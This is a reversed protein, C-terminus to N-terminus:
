LSALVDAAPKPKGFVWGQALQFGCGKVLRLQEETEVGEALAVAGSARIREVTHRVAQIIAPGGEIRRIITICLKVINPSLDTVMSMNLFGCGADDLAVQAGQRRLPRTRAAFARPEAIPLHETIEFVRRRFSRPHPLLKRLLVADLIDPGLNVSLWYPEPLRSARGLAASVCALDLDRRLGYHTAAAFLRDPREVPGGAPGRALAEFGVTRMDALDVVPQLHFDICPGALIDRFTEQSVAPVGLVEDLATIAGSLREFLRAPEPTGSGASLVGVRYDVHMAAASGLEADLMDRVLINAASSIADAQEGVDVGLEDTKMRFPVMWLGLEPSWPADLLFHRRIVSRAIAEFRRTLDHYVADTVRSGHMSEIRLPDCLRFVLVHVARGPDQGRHIKPHTM